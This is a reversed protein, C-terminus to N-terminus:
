IYCQYNYKTTLESMIIDGHYIVYSYFTAILIVWHHFFLKANYTAEHM